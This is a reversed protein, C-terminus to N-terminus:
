TRTSVWAIIGDAVPDSDFILDPYPPNAWVITTNGDTGIANALATVPDWGPTSVNIETGTSFSNSDTTPCTESVFTVSTLSGCYDFAYSGISTVGSPIIISTLKTCSSFARYNITTVGSPIEISTLKSCGAFTSNEISTVGSPIEISTLGSCNIFASNGISTVSNPIEISTLKSCGGFAYNGISTVSNPINISELGCKFFVNARISTMGEPITVSKLKSCNEFASNGIFTVGEPINISTLESCKRFANDWISTVSDHMTVSTLNTCSEFAYSGISTVGYTTPGYDVTPPIELEGAISTSTTDAVEVEGDQIVEYILEGVTFQDGIELAPYVTITLLMTATNSQNETSTAQMEYTYTTEADVDPATGSIQGTTQDIDLWSVATGGVETFTTPINTAATYSITSNSIAEIADPSTFDISDDIVYYLTLTYNQPSDIKVTFDLSATGYLLGNYLPDESDYELSGVESVRLYHDSDVPAYLNISSGSLIFLTHHSDGDEIGYKSYLSSVDCNLEEPTAVSSLGDLGIDPAADVGDDMAVVGVCCMCLMAAVVAVLEMHESKNKLCFCVESRHGPSARDGGGGDTM